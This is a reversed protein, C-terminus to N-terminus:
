RNVPISPLPLKKKNMDKRTQEITPLNALERSYLVSQVVSTLPLLLGLALVVSRYRGESLLAIFVAFVVLMAGLYAHLYRGFLLPWDAYLTGLMHQAIGVVFLGLAVSAVVLLVSERDRFVSSRNVARFLTELARYLVWLVAALFVMSPVLGLRDLAIYPIGPLIPPQAIAYREDPAYFSQLFFPYMTPLVYNDWGLVVNVPHSSAYMRVMTPGTATPAGYHYYNFAIWPSVLLALTGLLIGIQRLSRHLTYGSYWCWYGLLLLAAPIYIYAVFRTLIVAALLVGFVLGPHACLAPYKSQSGRPTFLYLTYWWFVVSLLLSLAYNSVSSSRVVVTPMLGLFVVLAYPLWVPVVRSLAAGLLTVLHVLVWLTLCLLLVGYVRLAYLKVLHDPGALLYVPVASLYYLPPQLSEYQIGRTGAYEPPTIPARPYTGQAIALIPPDVLDTLVPLRYYTALSEIYAYHASEDMPSPVPAVMAVLLVYLGIIPILLTRTVLQRLLMGRLSVVVVAVVLIASILFVHSQLWLVFVPYLTTM